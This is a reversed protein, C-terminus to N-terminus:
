LTELATIIAAPEMREKYDTDAHMARVVGARDIVFTAAVPLVTRGPGNFAAVDLGHKKYVAVLDPTLEYYLRYAKMVTSDLDSLVEFELGDKRVQEASKDPQQPTVAILRAGHHAVYPLAKRLVHLHMNCYPCWAGRYFVLVVPGRQLQEYLSVTQGFANPLRFDPAMEGVKIGPNPLNEALSQATQEMVAKDQASFKPGDAQKSQAQMQEREATYSPVAQDQGDAQVGGVAIMVLLAQLLPGKNTTWARM